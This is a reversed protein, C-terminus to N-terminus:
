IFLQADDIFPREDELIKPYSMINIDDMQCEYSHAYVKWTHGNM